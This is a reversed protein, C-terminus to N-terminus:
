SPYYSTSSLATKKTGTFAEKYIVTAGNERLLKEQEDLSNGYLAQGKSSVRAYGYIM